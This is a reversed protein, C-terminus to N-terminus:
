ASSLSPHSLTDLELRIKFLFKNLLQIMLSVSPERETCMFVVKDLIPKLPGLEASISGPCLTMIYDTTPRDGEDVLIRSLEDEMDLNLADITSYGVIGEDPAACQAARTFAAETQAATQQMMAALALAQLFSRMRNTTRQEKINQYRM